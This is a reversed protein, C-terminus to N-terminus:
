KACQTVGRARRAAVVGPEEDGGRGGALDGGVVRALGDGLHPDRGSSARARWRAPSISIMKGVM